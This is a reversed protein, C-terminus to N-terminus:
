KRPDSVKQGTATYWDDNCIIYLNDHYLVKRAGAGLENMVDEIGEHRNTVTLTHVLVAVCNVGQVLVTDNYVGKATGTPYFIPAQGAAYPYDMSEYTFPLETIDVESAAYITDEAENFSLVLTQISDCGLSSLTTDRYIGARNYEKSNWTYTEGPCLAVIQDDARQIPTVSLHLTVISDCYLESQLKRKYVGPKSKGNFDVSTYSDGECITDAIVTEPAEYYNVTLNYITDLMGATADWEGKRDIRTFTHEGAKVEDGNVFFDYMEIDQYQCATTDLAMKDYYAVRINGIHMACTAALYTTAEKYFAVKINKGEFASLDIQYNTAEHPIERLQQGAPLANNWVKANSSKWTKGGDDSVVVMFTFDDAMNAEAVVNDNPTYTACGTLAMDWTLHAQKASELYIPPTILWYNDYTTTSVTSSSYFPVTYHAGRIGYSNTIRKFGYTANNAGTIEASVSDLVLEAKTTGYAWDSELATERFDELFFPTRATVFTENQTYDSEGLDDGCISKVHWVYTTHQKLGTVTITNATVTDNFVFATDYYFDMDTSVQLIYKEATEGGTWTLTAADSLVETVELNKPESCEQLTSFSIDDLWMYDYTAKRTDGKAYLTTMFAVYPGTAGRLSVKKKQYLYDNAETAMDGVAVTGDYGITDIAVFTTPDNPDTM